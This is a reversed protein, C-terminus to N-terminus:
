LWKVDPGWILLDATLWFPVCCINQCNIGCTFCCCPPRAFINYSKWNSQSLYSNKTGPMHFKTCLIPWLPAQLNLIICQKYPNCVHLCHSIRLNCDVFINRLWLIYTLWVFLIGYYRYYFCLNSNVNHCIELQLCLWFVHGSRIAVGVSRWTVFWPADGNWLLYQLLTLVSTAPQLDCRFDGTRM